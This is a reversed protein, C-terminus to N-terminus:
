ARADPARRRAAACLFNPSDDPQQPSENRGRGMCGRLWNCQNCTITDSYHPTVVSTLAARQSTRAAVNAFPMSRFRQSHITRLPPSSAQKIASETSQSRVTDSSRYKSKPKKPHEVQAFEIFPVKAGPMGESSVM